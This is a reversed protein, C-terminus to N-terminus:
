DGSDGREAEIELRNGKQSMILDQCDWDFRLLLEAPRPLASFCSSGHVKVVSELADKSHGRIVRWMRIGIEGM